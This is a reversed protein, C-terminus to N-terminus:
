VRRSATLSLTLSLSLSPATNISSWLRRGRLRASTYVRVPFLIRWLFHSKSASKTMQLNYDKHVIECIM